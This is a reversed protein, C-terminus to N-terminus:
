EPTSRTALFVVYRSHHPAIALFRLYRLLSTAHSNWVPYYIVAGDPEIDVIFSGTKRVVEVPNTFPDTDPDKSIQDGVQIFTVAKYPIPATQNGSGRTLKFTRLVESKLFDSVIINGISKIEIKSWDIYIIGQEGAGTAGKNCGVFLCAALVLFAIRKRM